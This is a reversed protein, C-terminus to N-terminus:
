TKKKGDKVNHWPHHLDNPITLYNKQAGIKGSHHHAKSALRHRKMPEIKHGYFTWPLLGGEHGECDSASIEKRMFELM